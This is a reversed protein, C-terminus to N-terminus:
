CCDNRREAPASGTGKHRCGWTDLHKGVQLVEEDTPIDRTGKVEILLHALLDGPLRLEERKEEGSQEMVEDVHLM